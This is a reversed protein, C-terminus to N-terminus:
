LIRDTTKNRGLHRGLPVSHTVKMVTHHCPKPLVLQEMEMGELSHHCPVWRRYPLGDRPFFGVGEQSEKEKIVIRVDRLTSDTAQLEKMGEMSIDLEHKETDTVPCEVESGAEHIEM